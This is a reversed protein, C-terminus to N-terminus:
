LVVIRDASRIMSLRHAIVITTHGRAARDLAAQVVREGRVDIVSTAEDLILVAPETVIARAITIRQRQGGSLKAGARRVLARKQEVSENHWRSGLLGRAVNSHITGDFLSSDQQVLGIQSRWWKVDMDQLPRGCTSVSGQLEVLSVDDSGGDRQKKKNKNKDEGVAAPIVHQQQLTYWYGVLGVIASKGSGSPGVIATTKGAQIRLDLGDLAKVHPRSPYAFTVNEFVIDEGASVKPARVNGQRPWPADIVSFFDCAALSAKGPAQMPESISDPSFFVTISLLVVTIVGVSELRAQTLARAGYRFTPGVTGVVGFFTIAFQISTIPSTRQAHRQAESVPGGYKNATRQEAGCAMIMRISAFVESAVAAAGNEARAQLAQGRVVFPFIAGVILTILVIGFWTVLALEWNKSFAVLRPRPREARAAAQPLTIQHGVFYSDWDNPLGAQPRHDTGSLSPVNCISPVPQIPHALGARTPPLPTYHAVIYWLEDLTERVQDGSRTTYQDDFNGFNNVLNGFLVYMLPTTVGCSAAYALFGLKSAYAFVRKSQRSGALQSYRSLRGHTM